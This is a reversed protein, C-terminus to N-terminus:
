VDLKRVQIRLRAETVQERVRRREDTNDAFAARARKQREFEITELDVDVRKALKDYYRPIRRKSNGVVVFDHPYLDRKFKDFFAAGIGPRLSMAAYEPKRQVVVGDADISQYATKANEGLAKKMIYRACYAATERVLPQVSVHGHGWLARLEKSYLFWNASMSPLRVLPIVLASFGAESYLM